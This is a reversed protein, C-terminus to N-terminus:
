LLGLTRFYDNSALVDNAIQERLADISSFRVEDRLKTCFEISVYHGYIDRNFNHLHVELLTRTGDVTPRTGVNAVGPCPREGLGHVLVPFVGTVPTLRRHLFINATPFGWQRGLQAGQRVRGELAFPRGLLANATAIDGQMLAQRVRTSSVREGALLYTPMAETTFGLLRGKEALLAFHGQRHRGFHFDDGIVLAHIELARGLLFKVFDSASLHALSQNFKLVLVYDVKLAALAKFKERFRTIRPIALNEGSFFEFPHPEFTIVVSPRGAAKAKAVVASVLAQHGLHVGDFNGITAVGGRLAAPVEHWSRILQTM